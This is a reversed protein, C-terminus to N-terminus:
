PVPATLEAEIVRLRAAIRNRVTDHGNLEDLVAGVIAGFDNTTLPRSPVRSREASATGRNSPRLSEPVDKLVTAAADDLGLDGLGGAVTLALHHWRGLVDGLLQCVVTWRAADLGGHTNSGVAPNTQTPDVSSAAVRMRALLEICGRVEKVGMLALRADGHESARQLIVESGNLLAEARSFLDNTHHHDTPLQEKTFNHPGVVETAKYLHESKHRGIATKSLCWQRAMDRLTQGSLLQEEILAQDPHECVTCSRPM